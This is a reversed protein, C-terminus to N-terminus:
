LTSTVEVNEIFRGVARLLGEALLELYAPDALRRAEASETVFGAELLVAPMGAGVLVYFPGPKAGLDRVEHRRQRLASVLERQIGEALAVSEEVKYSQIMDSVIWAVDSARAAGDAVHALNNEMEALRITARDGSNSLYYTELGAASPNDSANAHVSLFLDAHAANALATREALSLFADGDRTLIVEHGARRLQRALRRSLDLVVDKERLGAVGIAGPDKGGHGPDVVIRWRRRRAAEDGIRPSAMAVVATAGGKSFPPSPANAATSRRPSGGQEVKKVSSSPLRAPVPRPTGRVDVVLRFPDPLPFAHHESLGPVDLVIRTVDGRLATAGLRVLPGGLPTMRMRLGPGPRTHRFDVVLRPPTGSAQDAPLQRVTYPVERGTEFVLRTTGAEVIQRVDRLVAVGGTAPSPLALLLALPVIRM